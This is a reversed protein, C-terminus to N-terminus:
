PMGLVIRRIIESWADIIDQIVDDDLDLDFCSRSRLDDFILRAIKKYKDM